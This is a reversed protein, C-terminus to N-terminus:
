RAGASASSDRGVRAAQLHIREGGRTVRHDQNRKLLTPAWFLVLAHPDTRRVERYLVVGPVDPM